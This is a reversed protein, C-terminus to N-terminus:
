APQEPALLRAYRRRRAPPMALIEAERWGTARAIALVEAPLAAARRALETLVFAGADLSGSVAMGCAPCAAALITEATPDLGLVAEAARDAIEEPLAEVPVPAGGADTVQVCRSLLLRGPEADPSAAAAEQDEGTVPRCTLRYGGAELTAAATPAEAAGALAAPDLALELTEGCGTCAMTARMPAALSAARLTLALAEREGVTLAAARAGLPADDTRGCRGLMLTLTSAVSAGADIAELLAEEDEGSPPRIVIDEFSVRDTGM